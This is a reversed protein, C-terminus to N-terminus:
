HNYGRQNDPIAIKCPTMIRVVVSAGEM